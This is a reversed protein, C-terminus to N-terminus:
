IIKKFRKILEQMLIQKEESLNNQKKTILTARSDYIKEFVKLNNLALTQGTAVLDVIADAIGLAPTIEVSGSVALINVGKLHSLDHGVLPKIGFRALSQSYATEKQLDCGSVKFGFEKTLIAVGAMASGGIGMFHVHINKKM